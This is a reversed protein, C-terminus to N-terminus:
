GICFLMSRIDSVLGNEQNEHHSLTLPGIEGPNKLRIGGMRCFDHAGLLFDVDYHPKAPTGQELAKLAARKKMLTRGWTDPM